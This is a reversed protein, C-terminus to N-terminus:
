GRRCWCRWAKLAEPDRGPATQCASWRTEMWAAYAPYKAKCSADTRPRSQQAHAPLAAFALVLAMVIRM